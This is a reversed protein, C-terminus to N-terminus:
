HNQKCCLYFHNLKMFFESDNKEIYSIIDEWSICEINIHEISSEFHDHLWINKENTNYECVRRRVKESISELSIRKKFIGKDIQMKPAIVYFSLIEIKNIDAKSLNLTECICGVTRAAQDYYKAKAIGPALPSFMKAELVTFQKALKVIRIDSKGHDGIVFHGIIGDTETYGEALKDGRYRALFASSLKGGSYWRANDLFRLPHDDYNHKSFWDLVLRLLWGENYLFSKPINSDEASCRELMKLISEIIM